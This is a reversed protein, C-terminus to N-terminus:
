LALPCNGFGECGLRLQRVCGRSLTLGLFACVGSLRCLVTVLGGGQGVTQDRRGARAAGPGARGLWGALTVLDTIGTIRVFIM